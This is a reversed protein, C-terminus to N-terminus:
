SCAHSPLWADKPDINNSGLGAHPTYEAEQMVTVYKDVLLTSAEQMVTVYTDILLTSAEQMVAFYKDILLTSADQM